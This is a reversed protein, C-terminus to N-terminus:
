LGALMTAVNKTAPLAPDTVVVGKVIERFRTLLESPTVQETAEIWAREKMHQLWTEDTRNWLCYIRPQTRNVLGQLAFTMLRVDPREKRLDCVLLTRAPRASRPFIEPFPREEKVYPIDKPEGSPRPQPVRWRREPEAAGELRFLSVSDIRLAATGRWELRCELKGRVYRFGLPVQVYRGQILEAPRLDMAALFEQAYSVCADVRGVPEDDEIEELLKVRFFAVYFGPDLEIYPGFLATDPNDVGPSVEWAKSGEADTDDVLRGTKHNADEAQWERVLIYTGRPMDEPGRVERAIREPLGELGQGSCAGAAFLSGTVALILGPLARM